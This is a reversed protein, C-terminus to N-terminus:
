RSDPKSCRNFTTRMRRTANFVFCHAHLQPCPIGDVPRSTLHIFEGWIMNGTTRDEERGGTRVRTQMDAEIEKMTETVSDRFAQLVRDDGLLAHVVSVSKPVSWTLDFGVRRNHLTKATLQEGTDPNINDCLQDFHPKDVQGKLGLLAAGQGHWNGIIEQGESLYDFDARAFYSKAGEASRQPTVRLM